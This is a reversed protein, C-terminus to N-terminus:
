FLMSFLIRLAYILIIIYAFGFFLFYLGLIFWDFPKNRPGVHPHYFLLFPALYIIQWYRGFGKVNGPQFNKMYFEVIAIIVILIVALLNKLFFFRNSLFYRRAKEEGYRHRFFLRLFYLGFLYAVCLFSFQPRESSFIYRQYYNLDWGWNKYELSVVTNFGILLVPILSLLRYFVLKSRTNAWRPTMFLFIMILFYCSITGFNNPIPIQLLRQILLSNSLDIETLLMSELFYLCFFVIGYLFVNRLSRKDNLFIDFDIFYLLFMGVTFIMFLFNATNQFDGSTGEGMSVAFFIYFFIRMSGFFTLFIGCIEFFTEPLFPGFHWDTKLEREKKRKRTFFPKNSATNVLEFLEGKKHVGFVLAFILAFLFLGSSVCGLCTVFLYIFYQNDYNKASVSFDKVMQFFDVKMDLKERILNEMEPIIEDKHEAFAPTLYALKEEDPSNYDAGEIAKLLFTKKESDWVLSSLYVETTDFRTYTLDITPETKFTSSMVTCNLSGKSDRYNVYADFDQINIDEYSTIISIFKESDSSCIMPRKFSSLVSYTYDGKEVMASRFQNFEDTYYASIRKKGSDVKLFGFVTVCVSLISLVAFLTRLIKSSFLRYLFVEIKGAKIEEQEPYSHIGNCLQGYDVQYAESIKETDKKSPKIYGNELLLYRFYNLGIYKAAKFRSLSYSNRKEILFRNYSINEDM